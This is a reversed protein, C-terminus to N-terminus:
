VADLLPRASPPSPRATPTTGSAGSCCPAVCDNEHTPGARARQGRVSPGSSTPAMAGPFGRCMNVLADRTLEGAYQRDSFVMDQMGQRTFGAPGLNDSGNVRAQTMILGIRTRLSRATGESGIIRAFGTLPQHPNALWYSDNSNTVYDDRFLHPLHSPGFLGPKVADADTAWNCAARSGDLVPLGLLKTTASGLATNCASAQADSVNPVTGIDAYLANGQKDAVITNVWPIRTSRSSRCCRQRRTRGIWTWSTTLASTTQTPM